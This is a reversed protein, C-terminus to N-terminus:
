SQPLALLEAKRNKLAEIKGEFNLITEDIEKSMQEVIPATDVEVDFEVTAVFTWTDDMHRHPDLAYCNSEPSRIFQDPRTIYINQKIKMEIDKKHTPVSM